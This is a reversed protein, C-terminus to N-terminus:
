RTLAPAVKMAIITLVLGLSVGNSLCIPLSGAMSGYAIWTSKGAVLLGYTSLSLSELAGPKMGALMQPLFSLTTMIAAGMGLMEIPSLEPM